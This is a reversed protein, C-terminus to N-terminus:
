AAADVAVPVPATPGVEVSELTLGLQGLVRGLDLPRARRSAVEGLAEDRTVRYRPDVRKRRVWEAVDAPWVRGSEAGEVLVSLEIGDFLVGAEGPDAVESSSVIVKQKTGDLQLVFRTEVPLDRIYRAPFLLISDHASKM